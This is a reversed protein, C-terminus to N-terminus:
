SLMTGDLRTPSYLYLEVMKGETNSQLPHDAERGPRKVVPSFAVPVWPISLQTTGLAPRSTTSFLFVKGRGPNSCQGNLGYGTAIGFSSDQRKFPPLYIM